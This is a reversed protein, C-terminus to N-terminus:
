FLEHKLMRSFLNKILFIELICFNGTDNLKIKNVEIHACCSCNRSECKCGYMYNRKVSTQNNDNLDFKFSEDLWSKHEALPNWDFLKQALSDFPSIVFASTLQIIFIFSLFSAIKLNM